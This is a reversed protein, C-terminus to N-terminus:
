RVLRRRAFVDVRFQVNSTSCTTAAEAWVYTSGYATAAFPLDPGSGELPHSTDGIKGLYWRFTSRTEYESVVTLHVERGLEARMAGAAGVAASESGCSVHIVVYPWGSIQRIYATGPGVAVVDFDQPATSDLRVSGTAVSPNDTVFSWHVGDGYDVLGSWTPTVRLRAKDGVTMQLDITSWSPWWSAALPTALILLFLTVMVRRM